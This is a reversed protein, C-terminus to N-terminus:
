RKEYSHPTYVEISKYYKEDMILTERYMEGGKAPNYNWIVLPEIRYLENGVQEFMDAYQPFRADYNARGIRYEESGYDVITAKGHIQLTGVTIAVYPNNAINKCKLTDSYSGFYLNCDKDYSFCVVSNDPYKKGITGLSMFQQTSLLKCVDEKTMNGGIYLYLFAM